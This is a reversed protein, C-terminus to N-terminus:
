EATSGHDVDDLKRFTSPIAEAVASAEMLVVFPYLFCDGTFPKTQMATASTMQDRLLAQIFRDYRHPEESLKRQVGTESLWRPLKKLFEVVGLFVKDGHAESKSHGHQSQLTTFTALLQRADAQVREQGESLPMYYLQHSEVAKGAQEKKPPAVKVPAPTPKHQKPPAGDVPSQASSGRSQQAPVRASPSVEIGAPPREVSYVLLTAGTYVEAPFGDLVQPVNGDDYLYCRQSQGTTSPQSLVVYTVYHGSTTYPGRHVLVSRLHFTQQADTHIVVNPVIKMFIKVSQGTERLYEMRKLCFLLLPGLPKASQTNTVKPLAHCQPCADRTADSLTAQSYFDILSFKTKSTALEM